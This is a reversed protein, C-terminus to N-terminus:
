WMGGTSPGGILVSARAVAGNRHHDCFWTEGKSEHRIAVCKACQEASEEHAYSGGQVVFVPCEATALVRDAVSGLRKRGRSGAGFRGVVILDAGAEGALGVIQEEVIGRRVHLWMRQRDYKTGLDELAQKVVEVLRAKAAREAAEIEGEPPHRWTGSGDPVVAVLHVDADGHRVAQDFVHTLVATSYESLDVGSVITFRHAQM